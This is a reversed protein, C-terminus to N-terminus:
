FKAFGGPALRVFVGGCIDEPLIERVGAAIQPVRVSELNDEREQSWHAFVMICIQSTPGAEFYNMSCPITVVGVKSPDLLIDSTGLEKAVITHLATELTDKLNRATLAGGTSDLILVQPM